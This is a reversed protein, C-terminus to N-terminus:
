PSNWLCLSNFSAFVSNPLGHHSLNKFLTSWICTAVKLTASSKPFALFGNLSSSNTFFITRAMCGSFISTSLYWQAVVCQLPFVLDPSNEEFHFLQFLRLARVVAKAQIFAKIDCPIGLYDYASKKSQSQWQKESPTKHWNLRWSLGVLLRMKLRSHLLAGM